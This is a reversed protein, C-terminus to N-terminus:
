CPHIVAKGVIKPSIYKIKKMIGRKQLMLKNLIVYNNLFFKIPITEEM